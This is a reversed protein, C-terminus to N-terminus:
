IPDSLGDVSTHSFMTNLRTWPVEASLSILDFNYNPRLIGSHNLVARLTAGVEGLNRIFFELIGGIKHVM